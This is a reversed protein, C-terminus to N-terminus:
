RELASCPRQLTVFDRSKREVRVRMPRCGSVSTPAIKGGYSKAADSLQWLAQDKAVDPLVGTGTGGLMACSKRKAEATGSLTMSLGLTLGVAMGAALTTKFMSKM